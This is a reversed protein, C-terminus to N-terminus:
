KLQKILNGIRAAQKMNHEVDAMFGSGDHVRHEYHMGPTVYMWKNAKLWLYNFWITDSGKHVPDYQYVKAYEHKNVVFNCTNFLCDGLPQSLIYAAHSKDILEWELKRYDFQPKAFSPCFIINELTVGSTLGTQLNTHQWGTYCKEFADIYSSDIVNDSDLIICWDNKSLSIAKAKNRSMGLNEENTFFRIKENKLKDLHIYIETAIGLPSCDDVIVIDTIRPDDIVKSFSEFLLDTRYYTTICLSLNM